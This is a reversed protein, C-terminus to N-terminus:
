QAKDKSSCIVCVIVLLLDKMVGGRFIVELISQFVGSSGALAM